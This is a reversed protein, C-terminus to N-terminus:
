LGKNYEELDRSLPFEEKFSQIVKENNSILLTLAGDWPVIEVEAMPHQISIPNKWFGTYGDAEPFSHKLVEEKTFKKDFGSLVGWVWQFNEINAIKTLEEGTIWCYSKSFIEVHENLQPYCEFDTILWNYNNQENGIAEFIEKLYTFYKPGKDLIIGKM